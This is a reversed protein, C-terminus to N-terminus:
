PPLVDRETFLINEERVLFYNVDGYVFQIMGKTLFLLSAGILFYSQPSINAVTGFQFIAGEQLPLEIGLTSESGTFLIYPYPIAIDTASAM